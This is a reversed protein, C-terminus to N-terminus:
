AKKDLVIGALQNFFQALAILTESPFQVITKGSTKDTFVIVVDKSSADVQFSVQVNEAATNFMKAITAGLTTGDGHPPLSPVQVNAQTSGPANGTPAPNPTSGGSSNGSPPPPGGASPPQPPATPPPSSFLLPPLAPAEVTAQVDM